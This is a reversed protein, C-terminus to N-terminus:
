ILPFALVTLVPPQLGGGWYIQQETYNERWDYMSFLWTLSSILVSIIYIFFNLTM